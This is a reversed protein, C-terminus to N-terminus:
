MALASTARRLRKFFRHHNLFMEWGEMTVAFGSLQTKPLVQKGSNQECYVWVEILLLLNVMTIGVKKMSTALLNKIKKLPRSHDTRFVM